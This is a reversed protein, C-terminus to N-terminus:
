ISGLNIQCTFHFLCCHVIVCLVICVHTDRTTRLQTLETVYRTEVNARRERVLEKLEEIERQKGTLALTLDSLEEKVKFAM